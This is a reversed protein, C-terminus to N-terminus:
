FAGAGLTAGRERRESPVRLRETLSLASRRLPSLAVLFDSVCVAAGSPLRRLLLLWRLERLEPPRYPIQVVRCIEDAVFDFIGFHAARPGRDSPWRKRSRYAPHSEALARRTGCLEQGARGVLLAAADLEELVPSIDRSAVFPLEPESGKLFLDADICLLSGRAVSSRLPLLPFDSVFRRAAERWVDMSIELSSALELARPTAAPEARLADALGAAAALFRAYARCFVDLAEQSAALAASM